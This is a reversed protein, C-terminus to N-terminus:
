CGLVSLSLSSNRESIPLKVMFHFSSKCLITGANYIREKEEPDDPKHDKTLEVLTYEGQQDEETEKADDAKSHPHCRKKLLIARSDGLNM